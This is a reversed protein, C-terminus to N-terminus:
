TTSLCQSLSTHLGLSFDRLYGLLLIDNLQHMTNLIREDGLVHQAQVCLITQM